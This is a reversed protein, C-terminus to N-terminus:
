LDTEQIFVLLPAVIETQQSQLETKLLDLIDHIIPFNVIGDDKLAKELNYLATASKLCTIHTPIESGSAFMITSYLAALLTLSLFLNNNKM